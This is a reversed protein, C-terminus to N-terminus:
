RICRAQLVRPRGAWDPLVSVQEYRGSLSFAQEVPEQIDVGIEMFLWGGPKLHAPVVTCIQNIVDMGEAGGSLALRPEWSSVEPQLTEIDGAKVYPPNSVIVDFFQKPRFASLLDGCLLSVRDQVGHRGINGWAVALAARSCDVAILNARSIERALVVAIAGSGTCLDLIELVPAAPDPNLVSLVHELLFETEPRPILVSPNVIFDLSWFESSGLIYQLPERRCRRSVSNLYLEEDSPAVPQDFLLFLRSRSVKLCAQLLREATLGSDEVGALSLQQAGTKLLQQVCM